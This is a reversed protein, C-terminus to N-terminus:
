VIWKTIHMVMFCHSCPAETTKQYTHVVVKAGECFFKIEAGWFVKEPVYLGQRSMQHGTPQNTPPQPARATNRM